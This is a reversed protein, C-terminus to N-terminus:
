TLPITWRLITGESTDTSGSAGSTIILSGGRRAARQELNALGSRRATEGLGAGDDSVTLMLSGDGAALEVDVGRAHAHKAVNTLAERLVAEIDEGVEDSVVTDIPGRFRVQPATPLLPTLEDAIRLVARRVASGGESTPSRLQFITTRIQRITADLEDVLRTMRARDDANDTRSEISQLTLGAAFLRQIVHDHLDRAIRDRDELLAM